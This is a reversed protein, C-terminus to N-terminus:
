RFKTIQTSFVTNLSSARGSPKFYSASYLAPSDRTQQIHVNSRLQKLHGIFAAAIDIPYAEDISHCSENL